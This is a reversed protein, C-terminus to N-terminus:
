NISAQVTSFVPPVNPEAFLNNWAELFSNATSRVGNSGIFDYTQTEQVMQLIEEFQMTQESANQSLNEFINWLRTADKIFALTQRVSGIEKHVKESDATCRRISAECDDISTQCSDIQPQMGQFSSNASRFKAETNSVERRRWIVNREANEVKGQLEIIVSSLGVVLGVPGGIILGLVAGGVASGVRTNTEKDKERALKSRANSLEIEANSLNSRENDLTNQYYNKVQSLSNKDSELKRLINQQRNKESEHNGKEKTLSEHEMQLEREKDRFLGEQEKSFKSLRQGDNQLTQLREVPINVVAGGEPPNTTVNRYIDQATEICARAIPVVQDVQNNSQTPSAM